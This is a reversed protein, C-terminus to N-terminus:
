PKEFRAHVAAGAARLVRMQEYVRRGSASAPSMGRPPALRPAAADASPEHELRLDIALRAGEQLRATGFAILRRIPGPTLDLMRRLWKKLSPHRRVGALMMKLLHIAARRLRRRPSRSAAQMQDFQCAANFALLRHKVGPAFKLAFALV